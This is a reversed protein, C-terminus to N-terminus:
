LIIGFKKMQKVGNRITEMHRGRSYDPMVYMGVHDCNTNYKMAFYQCHTEHRNFNAHIICDEKIIPYIHIKLFHQDVGWGGVINNSLKEWSPIKELKRTGFMGGLISWTHLPHDRM